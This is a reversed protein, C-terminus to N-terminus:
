QVKFCYIRDISYQDLVIGLISEYLNIHKNTNLVLMNFNANTCNKGSLGQSILNDVSIAYVGKKKCIIGGKFNYNSNEVYKTNIGQNQNIPRPIFNGSLSIYDFSDKAPKNQMTLADPFALGLDGGIGVSNSYDVQQNSIINLLTKPFTSNLFITDGVDYVEQQPTFESTVNFSYPTVQSCPKTGDDKCCNAFLFQTSIILLVIKLNNTHM